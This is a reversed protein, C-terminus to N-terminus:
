APKQFYWKDRYETQLKLNNAGAFQQVARVLGEWVPHYDDGFMLGAPRLNPWWAKIDADVHDYDHGADIYIADAKM